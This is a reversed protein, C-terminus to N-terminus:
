CKLDGKLSKLYGENREHKSNMAMVEPHSFLFDTYTKLNEYEGCSDTLTKLMEYDENTDLTLRLEELGLKYDVSLVKFKGSNRIYPTVHERDSKKTSEKWAIQLAEFTFIEADMGDPLNPDLCNSAYDVKNALFKEILDDIYVPDILPCDSTLRLVYDPSEKLAAQYFRDLVDDMSGQFFIFGNEVSIKEITHNEPEIASAVIFSNIKLSKKIRKLHLGLVTSSGLAKLIKGPFRTSSLRAQTIAIIKM